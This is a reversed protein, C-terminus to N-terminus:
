LKCNNKLKLLNVSDGPNQFIHWRSITILADAYAKMRPNWYKAPVQCDEQQSYYKCSVIGTQYEAAAWAISPLVGKYSNLSGELNISDSFLIRDVEGRELRAITDHSIKMKEALARLPMGSEQRKRRVLIGLDQFTMIGDALYIQLIQIQTLGSPYVLPVLETEHADTSRWVIEASDHESINEIEKENARLFNDEPQGILRM